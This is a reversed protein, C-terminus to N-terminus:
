SCCHFRKVLWCTLPKLWIITHSMFCLPAVQSSTCSMSLNMASHVSCFMLSKMQKRASIPEVCCVIIISSAWKAQISSDSNWSPPPLHEHQCRCQRNQTRITAARLVPSCKQWPVLWTAPTSPLQVTKHLPHICATMKSATGPLITQWKLHHCSTSSQDM